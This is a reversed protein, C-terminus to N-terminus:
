EVVQQPTTQTVTMVFSAAQPGLTADAKIATVNAGAFWESDNFNRLQSSIKNNTEAVGAIEMARGTMSLSSFFVKDALKQALEDFVRVIIPRNGQLQQIVQMRALLENKKTQLQQIESIREQLIAIESTLYQNRAKQTSIKTNFFQGVAFLIIAALVVVGGAMRYFEQKQDERREDRWPLLNIKIDAM